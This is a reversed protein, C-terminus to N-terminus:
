GERREGKPGIRRRIPGVWSGAAVLWSPCAWWRSARAGPYRPALYPDDAPGDVRWFGLDNAWGRHGPRTPRDLVTGGPDFWDLARGPRPLPQIALGAWTSGDDWRLRYYYVDIGRPTPVEFDFGATSYAFYSSGALATAAARGAVVAWRGVKGGIM